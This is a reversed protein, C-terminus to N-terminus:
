VNTLQRPRLETVNTATTARGPRAGGRERWSDLWYIIQNMADMDKRVKHPPLDCIGIGNEAAHIYNQSDRM